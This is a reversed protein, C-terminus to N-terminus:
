KQLLDSYPNYGFLEYHSRFVKFLENKKTQSLKRLNDEVNIVSAEFAAEVPTIVSDGSLYKLDENIHELKIVFEVNESCLSCTEWENFHSDLVAKNDNIIDDVLAEFKIRRMQCLRILKLIPNSVILVQKPM